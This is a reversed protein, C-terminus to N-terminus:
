ADLHIHICIINVYIYIVYHYLRNYLIYTDKNKIHICTNPNLTLFFPIYIICIHTSEREREREREYTYSVCVCVGGVVVRASKCWVWLGERACVSVCEGGWM